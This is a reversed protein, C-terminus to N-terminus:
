ISRGLIRRCLHSVNTVLWLRLHSGALVSGLISRQDFRLRRVGRRVDPALGLLSSRIQAVEGRSTERGLAAASDALVKSLSVYLRLSGDMAEDNMEWSRGYELLRRAVRETNDIYSHKYSTTSSGENPRYFYLVDEIRVFSDASNAIPLLQLLDEALMLRASTGYTANVDIHCLRIAKGCLSNSLGGCVAKKFLKYDDGGYFGERLFPLDDRTSFDERRSFRFSVIDAGTKDICNSVTELADSRFADDADLFVVYDGRCHSLGRRRALLPGRNEGHLVRINTRAAAFKDAIAGSRDTSGDDVIVLEYNSYTQRAVSQLCESLYREGNYVPVIISFRM